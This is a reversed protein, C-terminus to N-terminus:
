SKHCSGMYSGLSRGSPPAASAHLGMAGLLVSVGGASMADIFGAVAGSLAGMLMFSVLCSLSEAVKPWTFPISSGHDQM